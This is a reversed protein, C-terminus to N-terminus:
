KLKPTHPNPLSKSRVTGKTEIEEQYHLGTYPHFPHPSDESMTQKEQNDVIKGWLLLIHFTAPFHHNRHRGKQIVFLLHSNPKVVIFCVCVCQSFQVKELPILLSHKQFCTRLDVPMKSQQLHRSTLCIM